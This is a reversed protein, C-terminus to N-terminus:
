PPPALPLSQATRVASLQQTFYDRIHEFVAPLTARDFGPPDELLRALPGSLGPVPPSLM